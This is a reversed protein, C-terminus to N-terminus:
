INRFQSISHLIEGLAKQEAAADDPEMNGNTSEGKSSGDALSAKDSTVNYDNKNVSTLVAAENAPFTVLSFEHLKVEYIHRVGNGDIEAKNRPISFGISFSDVVGDSALELAEDGLTTKSIKAKVFVGNDDTSMNLPMGLPYEHQWLMKIKGGPFRERITKDFAGKHIIDDVKDIDWTSIYGEVTREETDVHASKLTFSKTIVGNEDAGKKEPSVNGAKTEHKQGSKKESKECEEIAKSIAHMYHEGNQLHKKVLEDFNKTM